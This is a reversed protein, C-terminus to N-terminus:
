TRMETQREKQETYPACQLTQEIVHSLSSFLYSPSFISGKQREKEDGRVRKRMALLSSTPERDTRANKLNREEEHYSAQKRPSLFHCGVASNDILEKRRFLKEYNMFKASFVKM